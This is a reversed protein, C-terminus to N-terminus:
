DTRILQALSSDFPTENAQKHKHLLPPPSSSQNTDSLRFLPTLFILRGRRSSAVKLSGERRRGKLLYWLFCEQTIVALSSEYSACLLVPFFYHICKGAPRTETPRPATAGHFGYLSGGKNGSRKGDFM